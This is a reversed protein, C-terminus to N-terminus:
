NRLLASLMELGQNEAIKQALSLAWARLSRMRDDTDSLAKAAEYKQRFQLLQNDQFARELVDLFSLASVKIIESNFSNDFYHNHNKLQGQLWNKALVDEIILCIKDGNSDFTAKSIATLLKIKAVEEVDSGFKLAADYRLKKIKSIPTKLKESVKQNSLNKLPADSAYGYEDLLYMVLADIDSKPMSGLGFKMYNALFISEFQSM